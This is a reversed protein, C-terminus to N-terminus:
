EFFKMPKIYYNNKQKEKFEKMFDSDIKDFGLRVDDSIRLDLFSFAYLPVTLINGERGLNSMGTRIIFDIKKNKLLDVSGKNKMNSSGKDPQNIPSKVAYAPASNLRKGTYWFSQERAIM